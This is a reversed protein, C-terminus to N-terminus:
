QLHPYNKFLAIMGAASSPNVYIGRPAYNDLAQKVITSPRQEMSQISFFFPLFSLLYKM